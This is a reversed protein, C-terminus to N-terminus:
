TAEATAESEGAVVQLARIHHGRASLEHMGTLLLIRLKQPAQAASASVETDDGRELIPQMRHVRHDEAANEVPWCRAHTFHELEVRIVRRTLWVLQAHIQEKAGRRASLRAQRDDHAPGRIM